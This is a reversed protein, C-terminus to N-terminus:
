RRKGASLPGQKHHVLMVIDFGDLQSTQIVRRLQWVRV